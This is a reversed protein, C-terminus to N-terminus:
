LTQQREEPAKQGFVQEWVEAPIDLAQQLSEQQAVSLSHIARRGTELRGYCSLSTRYPPDQCALRQVLGQQTLGRHERVRQLWHRPLM